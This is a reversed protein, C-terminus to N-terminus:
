VRYEHRYHHRHVHRWPLYLRHGLSLLLLLSLLPFLLLPGLILLSGAWLLSMHCRRTSHAASCAASRTTGHATSHANGHHAASRPVTRPYNLAPLLCPTCFQSPRHATLATHQPATSNTTGAALVKEMVEASCGFARGEDVLLVQMSKPVDAIEYILQALLLLDELREYKALGAATQGPGEDSLNLKVRGCARLHLLLRVGPGDGVISLYQLLTMRRYTLTFRHVFSVRAVFAVLHPM